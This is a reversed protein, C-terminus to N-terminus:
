EADGLRGEVDCGCGRMEVYHLIRDVRGDENGIGDLLEVIINVSKWGDRRILGVMERSIVRGEDIGNELGRRPQVGGYIALVRLERNTVDEVQKTEM